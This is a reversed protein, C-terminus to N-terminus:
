VLRPKVTTPKAEHFGVEEQYELEEVKKTDYMLRMQQLRLSSTWQHLKQNKKNSELKLASPSPSMGSGDLFYNM